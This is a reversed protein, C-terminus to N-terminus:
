NWQAVMVSTNFYDMRNLGDVMMFWKLEYRMFHLCCDVKNCLPMLFGYIAAIPILYLVTFFSAVWLM